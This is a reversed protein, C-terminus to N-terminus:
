PGPRLALSAIAGIAATEARLVLPGLTVGAGLDASLLTREHDSWGGEPGIWIEVPGSLHIESFAPSIAREDFWIRHPALSERLADGIPCPAYVRMENLRECQKLAQDAIAQWRERFEEPGKRDRMKVVSHDTLIPTLSAAGLETAKEVVWDMADGKLVALRLHLPHSPPAMSKRSAVQDSVWHLAGNPQIKAVCQRGQGDMAIVSDGVGL